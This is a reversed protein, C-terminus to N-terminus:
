PWGGAFNLHPWDFTFLHTQALSTLLCLWRKHYKRGRKRVGRPSCSSQLAQQTLACGPTWNLQRDPIKKRKQPPVPRRYKIYSNDLSILVISWFLQWPIDKHRDMSRDRACLDSCVWCLTLAPTVHPASPDLLSSSSYHSRILQPTICHQLATAPCPPTAIISHSSRLGEAQSHQSQLKGAPCLSVQATKGQLLYSLWCRQLDQPEM